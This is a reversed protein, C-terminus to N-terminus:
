LPGTALMSFDSERFVADVGDGSVVAAIGPPLFLVRVAHKHLHLLRSAPYRTMQEPGVAPGSPTPYADIYWGSDHDRPQIRTMAWREADLARDAVIVDDTSSTPVPEDIAAKQLVITQGVLTWLAITLDETVADGGDPRTYDPTVVSFSRDHEARLIFPGWGLQLAFGDRFESRYPRFSELVGRAQQELEGMARATLDVGDIEVKVTELM